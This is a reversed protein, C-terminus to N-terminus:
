RGCRWAEDIWALARGLCKQVANPPVRLKQAITAVQMGEWYRAELVERYRLPASRVLAQLRAHMERAEIDEEPSLGRQDHLDGPAPGGQATRGLLRAVIAKRGFGRLWPVLPRTPDYEGKKALAQCFADQVADDVESAPLHMRRADRRIPGAVRELDAFVQAWCDHAEVKPAPLAPEPDDPRQVPQSSDVELHTDRGRGFSAGKQFFRRSSRDAGYM